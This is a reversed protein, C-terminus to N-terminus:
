NNTIQKITPLKLQNLIETYDLLNLKVHHSISKEAKPKRLPFITM